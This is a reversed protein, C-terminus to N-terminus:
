FLFSISVSSSVWSVKKFYSVWFGGYTSQMYVRSIAINWDACFPILFVASIVYKLSKRWISDHTIPFLVCTMRNLVLLVQLLSKCISVHHTLLMIIKFGVLPSQFYDALVPCIPTFYIFFRAFLGETILISINQLFYPAWKFGLSVVSEFLFTKCRFLNITASTVKENISKWNLNFNQYEGSFWTFWYFPFFIQLSPM